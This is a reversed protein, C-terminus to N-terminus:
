WLWLGLFSIIKKKEKESVAIIGSSTFLSRNILIRVKRAALEYSKFTSHVFFKKLIASKKM